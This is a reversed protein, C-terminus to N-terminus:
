NEESKRLYPRPGPKVGHVFLRHELKSRPVNYMGVTSLTVPLVAEVADLMQYMTSNGYCSTIHTQALTEDGKVHLYM